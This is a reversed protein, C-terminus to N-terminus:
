QNPVLFRGPSRWFFPGLPHPPPAAGCRKGSPSMCAATPDAMASIEICGTRENVWSKASLMRVSRMVASTNAPLGKSIRTFLAPMCCVADRDSIPRSEPIGLANAQGEDQRRVPRQGMRQDPKPQEANQRCDDEGPGLCAPVTFWRSFQWITRGRCKM